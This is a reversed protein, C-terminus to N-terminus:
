ETLEVPSIHFVTAMPGLIELGPPPGALVIFGGFTDPVYKLHKRLANCYAQASELSQKAALVDPEEGAVDLVIYITM